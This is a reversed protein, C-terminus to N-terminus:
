AQVNLQPQQKNNMQNLYNFYANAMFDDNMNSGYLLKQYMALDNPTGFPNTMQPAPQQESPQATQLSQTLEAEKAAKKETYSKGVVVKALMDGVIFGVISGVPGLLATGVAGLATGAAIRVASKGAEAAGALLGEDKSARFINPLEFAVMLVTGLLPARKGLGKLTGGIKKFFGVNKNKWLASVDKGYSKLSDKLAAFVKKDATARDAKQFADGVQKHFKYFRGKGIKKNYRKYAKLKSSVNSAFRDDFILRGMYNLGKGAIKAIGM